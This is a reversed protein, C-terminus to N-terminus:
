GAHAVSAVPEPVVARARNRRVYFAGITVLLAPLFFKLGDRLLAAPGVAEDKGVGCGCNIKLGRIYAYTIASMFGFLVVSALLGSYRRSIGSVLWLGLFLEFFPLVHAVFNAMPPSLLQYSAVQVFFYSLSLRVSGRSWPFGPFIPQLKGYAAALFISGVIIGAIVLLPRLVAVRKQHDRVCAAVVLSALVFWFGHEAVWTLVLGLTTM